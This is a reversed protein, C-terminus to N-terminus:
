ASETERISPQGDFFKIEVDDGNNMRTEVNEWMQLTVAYITHM